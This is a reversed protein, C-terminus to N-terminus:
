AGGMMEPPCAAASLASFQSSDAVVAAGWILLLFISIWAPSENSFPYLACCLASVALALTTVRASVVGHRWWGGLVCGVVGIGIILFAFGSVQSTAPTELCSLVILALVLTWLAYLESMHGFYGLASARFEAISFAAILRGFQLPPADHRRKLQSGM